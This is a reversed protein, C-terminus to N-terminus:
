LSPYPDRDIQGQAEVTDWGNLICAIGLGDLMTNM